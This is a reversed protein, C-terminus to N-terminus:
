FVAVKLMAATKLGADYTITFQQVRVLNSLKKEWILGSNLKICDRMYDVKQWSTLTRAVNLLIAM